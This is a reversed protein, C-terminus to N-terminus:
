RDEKKREAEFITLEPDTYCHIELLEYTIIENRMGIAQIIDNIFPAWFHYNGYVHRYNAVVCGTLSTVYKIRLLIITKKASLVKTATTEPDLKFYGKKRVGTNLTVYKTENVNWKNILHFRQTGIVFSINFTFYASYVSKPWRSIITTETNEFLYYKAQITITTNNIHNETKLRLNQNFVDIVEIQKVKVSRTVEQWHFDKYLNNYITPDRLFVEDPIKGLLIRIGQKLKNDTINFLAIDKDSALLEDIGHASASSNHVSSAVNVTINIKGECLIIVVFILILVFISM